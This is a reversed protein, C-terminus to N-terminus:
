VENEQMAVQIQRFLWHAVYGVHTSVMEAYNGPVSQVELRGVLKGWVPIPDDPVFAHYGCMLYNVKGPYYRPHYNALAVIGAELVAKVSSPLSDDM